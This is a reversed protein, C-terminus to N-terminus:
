LSEKGASGVEDSSVLSRVREVAGISNLFEYVSGPVLQRWDLGNIMRRRIEVGSYKERELYPISRVEYGAETFLRGTLPQNTYVIRFPPSLSEVLKVWLHHMNPTDPVGTIVCKELSLGNERLALHLMQLREGFTFPNDKEHSTLSSGVAIIIRGHISLIHKVAYMHGLHVPQFRGVYLPYTEGGAEAM